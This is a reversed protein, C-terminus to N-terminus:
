KAQFQEKRFGLITKMDDELRVVFGGEYGAEPFGEKRKQFAFGYYLYNGESGSYIGPDFMLGYGSESTLTRGDAFQIDGYYEYHGAPTACVAVGLKDMKSTFYYLYYRGDPGQVADPALLFVEDAYNPDDTKKFIVGEFTWDAPDDAPASWCVYDGTCYQKGEAEDHSGYVYIRDGFLKPEGDPIFEWGPLYPNKTQRM